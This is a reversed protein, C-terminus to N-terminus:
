ENWVETVEPAPINLPVLNTPTFSFEWADMVAVPSMITGQTYSLTCSINDANNFDIFGVTVSLGDQSADITTGTYTGGYSDTLMFATANGSVASVPYNFTVTIFKGWDGSGNDINAVTVPMSSVGWILAGTATIDAINIHEDAYSDTYFVETLEGSAAIGSLLIHESARTAIGNTQSVIEYLKGGGSVTQLVIRYDWTRSAAIQTWTEAPGFGIPAANEWAGDKYSRMYIMGSTIYFVLLGMDFYSVEAWVGRVASLATVNEAALLTPEAADLRQGYLAGNDLWFVWPLQETIFEYKDHRTKPMTGDFAIAVDSGVATFGTDVWVHGDLATQTDAYVVKVTDNAAYAVYIRDCDKGKNTHRAAVASRTLGNYTGILQRELFKSGTLPLQTRSINVVARPDANNYATQQHLLLRQKLTPDITKM